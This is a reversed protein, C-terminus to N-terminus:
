DGSRADLALLVGSVAVATLALIVVWVAVKFRRSLLSSSVAVALLGVLACAGAVGVMALTVSPDSGGVLSRRGALAALVVGATAVLISGTVVAAMSRVPVSEENAM